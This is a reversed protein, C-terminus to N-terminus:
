SNALVKRQAKLTAQKGNQAIREKRLRELIALERRRSIWIEQEIFYHAKGMENNNKMDTWGKPEGAYKIMTKIFEVLNKGGFIPKVCLNAAVIPPVFTVAMFFINFRLGFIIVIPMSWILLFGISYLMKKLSIPKKFKIDGLSYMFLERTFFNTMNTGVLGRM